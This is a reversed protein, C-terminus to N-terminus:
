TERSGRGANASRNWSIIPWTYPFRAETAKTIESGRVCRCRSRKSVRHELGVPVLLRDPFGQSLMEVVDIHRPHAEHRREERSETRDLWSGSASEGWKGRQNAVRCRYRRECSDVPRASVFLYPAISSGPRVDGRRRPEDPAGGGVGGRVARRGVSGPHR